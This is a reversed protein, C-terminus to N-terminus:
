QGDTFCLRAVNNPDGIYVKKVKKAVGSDRGIYITKTKHAVQPFVIRGTENFDQFPNGYLFTGTGSNTLFSNSVTDYLGAKHDAKRIVPIYSHVVDYREYIYFAYLKTKSFNGIITDNNVGFICLPDSLVSVGATSVYSNDNRASTNTTVSHAITLKENPIIKPDTVAENAGIWFSGSRSSDPTWTELHYRKETSKRAGFISGHGSTGISNSTIFTIYSGTNVTTKYGTDIYQTGTSEIYEVQQYESPITIESMYFTEGVIDYLGHVSDSKRICPVFDRILVDNEYMKLSYLKLRGSGELTFPGESTRQRRSKFITMTKNSTNTGSRPIATVTTRAFIDSTQSYSITSGEGDRYNTKEIGTRLSCELSADMCGFVYNGYGYKKETMQFDAEVTTASSLVVGSDIYEYGNSEIYEVQTYENPLNLYQVNGGSAYVKGM